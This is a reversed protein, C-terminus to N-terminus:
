TQYLAVPMRAGWLGARRERESASFARRWHTRTTCMSSIELAAALEAAVTDAWTEGGDGGADAALRPLSLVHVAEKGYVIVEPHSDTGRSAAQEPLPLTSVPGGSSNYNKFFNVAAKNSAGLYDANAAAAAASSRDWVGELAAAVAELM